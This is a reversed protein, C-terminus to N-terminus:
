LVAPEFIRRTPVRDGYVFWLLMQHSMNTEKARRIVLTLKIAGGNRPVAVALREDRVYGFANCSRNAYSWTMDHLAITLSAPQAAGTQVSIDLTADPKVESCNYGPIAIILSAEGEVLNAVFERTGSDRLEARGLYSAKEFDDGLHGCSLLLLVMAMGSVTRLNM